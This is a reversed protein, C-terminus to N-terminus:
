KRKGGHSPREKSMKDQMVHLDDVYDAYEEQKRKEKEYNFPTVCSGEIDKIIDGSDLKITYHAISANKYQTKEFWKKLVVGDLKWCMRGDIDVTVRDGPEFQNYEDYMPALYTKAWMEDHDLYEVRICDKGNTEHPRVRVIKVNDKGYSKDFREQYSNILDDSIENSEKDKLVFWKKAILNKKDCKIEKFDSNLIDYIEGDSVFPRGNDYYRDHYSYLDLSPEVEIAERLLTSSKCLTKVVLKRFETM